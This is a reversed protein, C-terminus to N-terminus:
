ECPGLDVVKRTCDEKGTSDKVCLEVAKPSVGCALEIGEGAGEVAEGDVRWTHALESAEDEADDALTAIHSGQVDVAARPSRETSYWQKADVAATWTAGYPDEYALAWPQMTLAYPGDDDWAVRMELDESNTVTEVLRYDFADNLSVDAAVVMSLTGAPITLTDDDIPLQLTANLLLRGGTISALYDGASFEVAPLPLDLERLIAHGRDFRVSLKPCRGDVECGNASSRLASAGAIELGFLQPGQVEVSGEVLTFDDSGLWGGGRPQENWPFALDDNSAISDCPDDTAHWGPFHEDAEDLEGVYCTADYELGLLWELRIFQLNPVNCPTNADGDDCSAQEEMLLKAVDIIGAKGAAHHLSESVDEFSEICRSFGHQNYFNTLAYFDNRVTNQIELKFLPIIKANYVQDGIDKLLHGVSRCVQDVCDTVCAQGHEAYPSDPQATNPYDYGEECCAIVTLADAADAQHAPGFAHHGANSMWKISEVVEAIEQDGANTPTADRIAKIMPQEDIDVDWRVIAQGDCLWRVTPGPTDASPGVKCVKTPEASGDDTEGDTDGEPDTEVNETDQGGLPEIEPADDRCGTTAIITVIAFIAANPRPM